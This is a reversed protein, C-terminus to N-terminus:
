DGKRPGSFEVNPREENAFLPVDDALLKAETIPLLKFKYPWAMRGNEKREQKPVEGNFAWRRMWACPRVSRDVRGNASIGQDSM